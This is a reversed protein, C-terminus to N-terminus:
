ASLSGRTDTRVGSTPMTHTKRETATNSRMAGREGRRAIRHHLPEGRPLARRRNGQLVRHVRVHRFPFRQHRGLDPEEEGQAGRQSGGRRGLPLDRDAREARLGAADDPLAGEGKGARRPPIGPQRVAALGRELIGGDICRGVTNWPDDTCTRASIEGLSAGADITIRNEQAHSSLCLLAFVPPLLLKKMHPLHKRTVPPSRRGDSLSLCFIRPMCSGSATRMAPSDPRCTRSASASPTDPGSARMAARRLFVPASAKSKPLFAYSQFIM